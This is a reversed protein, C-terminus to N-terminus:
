AAPVLAVSVRQMDVRECKNCGADQGTVTARIEQSVFGTASVRITYNGQAGFVDCIAGGSDCLVGRQPGSVVSATLGPIPKTGQTTTVTIEVAPGSPACPLYVCEVGSSCGLVFISATCIARRMLGDHHTTSPSRCM